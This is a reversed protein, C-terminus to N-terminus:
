ISRARNWRYMKQQYVKHPKEAFCGRCQKGYCKKGCTNCVRQKGNLKEGVTNVYGMEPM